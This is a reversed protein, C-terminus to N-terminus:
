NWVASTRSRTKSSQDKHISPLTPSFFMPQNNIMETQIHSQLHCLRSCRGCGLRLGSEALLIHQDHRFWEPTQLNSPFFVVLILWLFCCLASTMLLAAEKVDAGVVMLDSLTIFCIDGRVSRSMKWTKLLTQNSKRTHQQGPSGPPSTRAPPMSSCAPSPCRHLCATNIVSSQQLWEMFSSSRLFIWRPPSWCVHSIARWTINSLLFQSSPLFSWSLSFFVRRTNMIPEYHFEPLKVSICELHLCFSSFDPDRIM